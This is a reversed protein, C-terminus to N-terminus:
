SAWLSSGCRRTAARSAEIQATTLPGVHQGAQAALARITQRSKTSLWAVHPAHAFAERYSGFHARSAKAIQHADRMLASRDIAPYTAPRRTTFGM